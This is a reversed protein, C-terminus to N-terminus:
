YYSGGSCMRKRKRKKIILAGEDRINESNIGIKRKRIRCTTTRNLTKKKKRTTVTIITTIIIGM